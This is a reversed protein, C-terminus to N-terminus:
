QQAQTRAALPLLRLYQKFQPQYFATDPGRRIVRGAPAMGEALERLSAQGPILSRALVVAGQPSSAAGPQCVVPVGTIDAIIQPTVESAAAGGTMLLRQVSIGAGRLLELHRNLEFALGEIVSRLLHAATHSLQLGDLCGKTGVAVGTAGFAGLLPRFMLGDSGPPVAKLREDIESGTLKEQGALQLAWTFASGGNRLSLIQGHLGDVVHHSVLADDTVPDLLRDTVALLVWATGAGFMVDAAHVAGCGLASAYQDHIAPSIPLGAPLDLQCAVEPLLRGAPLPPAVLEPLQTSEIGLRRLLGADYDRRGPNYLLTLACSTGDHTPRGCLRGVIVDGVFGIRNPAAQLGPQERGLRALQGVALASGGHSIHEVFWARGLERTLRVDDAAGRGDLWSIVRGQPRHQGDLLQLAGGQSSIGIAQVRSREVDRTAQRVAAVTASWIEEIDQEVGGAGVHFLAVPMSAQGRIQGDLEAVVAKVNTTGLDLGLLM